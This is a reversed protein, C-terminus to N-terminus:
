SKNPLCALLDRAQAHSILYNGISAGFGYNCRDIVEQAQPWSKTIRLVQKELRQLRALEKKDILVNSM